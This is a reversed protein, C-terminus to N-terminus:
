QKIKEVHTIALTKGPPVYQIQYVCDGMKIFRIRSANTITLTDRTVNLIADVQLTFSHEIQERPKAQAKANASLLVLASLILLLVFVRKLPGSPFIRQLRESITNILIIIAFISLLIWHYKNM